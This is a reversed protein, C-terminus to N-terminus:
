LNMKIIKFDDKQRLILLASLNLQKILAIAQKDGMAMMATAYADAIMTQPHLISISALKSNVPLGTNPNLIHMYRKGEWIFYHRYDGSTAISQNRLKIMIPATNNPQEIGITWDKGHNNGSVKVEGGIEVLYNPTNLLKGIEDVGYGKAIASLDIQINKIKKVAKNKGERLMLYQISSNQRAKQIQARNPKQTVKNIGFGWIDILRGIGPDFYGATQQHVKHAVKLVYFLEDSVNIWQETPSKNLLSLESKKDWTSFIQEIKMLRNDIDRQSVASDGIITVTYTTGMTSGHFTQTKDATGCANLLLFAFAILYLKTINLNM